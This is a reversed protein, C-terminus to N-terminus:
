QEIKEAVSLWDALARAPLPGPAPLSVSDAYTAWLRVLQENREAVARVHDVLDRVIEAAAARVQPEIDKVAVSRAASERREIEEVTRQQRRHEDRLANIRRNLDGVEDARLRVGRVSGALTSELTQIQNLLEALQQRAAVLEQRWAVVSVHDEVRPLEIM